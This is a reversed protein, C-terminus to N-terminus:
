QDDTKMSLDRQVKEAFLCFLPDTKQSIKPRELHTTVFKEPTKKVEPIILM